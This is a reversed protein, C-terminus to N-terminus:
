RSDSGGAADLGSVERALATYEGVSLTEARRSGEIGARELARALAEESFGAARLNNRLTKRRQAFASRVTRSFLSEEQPTMGPDERFTIRLVSSVVSPEPYFCAPGVHLERSVDAYRAILVSPIGYEKGGPAATIRDALEKQMMLVMRSIARRYRLLHFLIPTSITYPINGVVTVTGGPRVRSFDYDLVDGPVIEVNSGAPFRDRLLDVLRRDIELAVVKPARRALEATLLGLGAGIEVIPEEPGPRVLDAIRRIINQDELFSQGFRKRPHIDYRALLKRVSDM